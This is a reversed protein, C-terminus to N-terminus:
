PNKNFSPVFLKITIHCFKCSSMLPGYMLYTPPPAPPNKHPDHFIKPMYQHAM